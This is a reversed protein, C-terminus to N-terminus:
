EINQVQERVKELVSKMEVALRSIESDNAKSGITNIERNMEQILFDFKRGIPDESELMDQSQDLHSYLRTVEEDINIKDGFIAAESYLRDEDVPCGELLEDLHAKLKIFYAKKAEPAQNNIENLHERLTNFYLQLSEQLSRGERSRMSLFDHLAGESAELIGEEVRQENISAPAATFVDDLKLLDTMSWDNAVHFRDSIQELGSIYQGILEWNPEVVELSGGVCEAAINIICKGRKVKEKFRARLTEELHYFAKPLNIIIECFRHNVSSIEVTIKCDQIDLVFRGFGTMSYM